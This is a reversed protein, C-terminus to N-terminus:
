QFAKIRDRTAPHSSLFGLSEGDEGAQKSLRTLIAAFHKLAIGKEEMLQRAYDDAETEFKRSYSMNVLVTPLTTAFSSITSIDGAMLAIIVAASSGQIAGRLSHRYRVHGIEHALVAEIEGDNKALKILGDTIVITGSPLAFANAGLAESNRFALNYRKRNPLDAILFDFEKRIAAQRAAPIKSPETFYKDMAKLTGEGLYDQTEVPLSFAIWKAIAPVGFSLFGYAFAITLVLAVAIYKLRSELKHVLGQHRHDRSSDLLADLQPSYDAELSAGDSLEIRRVQKGIRYAKSIQGQPVHRELGEGRILLGGNREPHLTVSHRRSTYGDYYSAEIASM